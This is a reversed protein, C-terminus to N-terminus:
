SCAKVFIVIWVKGGNLKKFVGEELSLANRGGLFPKGSIGEFSIFFPFLRKCSNGRLTLVM